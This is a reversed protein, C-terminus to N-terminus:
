GGERSERWLYRQLPRVGRRPRRDVGRIGLRGLPSLLTGGNDQEVVRPTTYDGVNVAFSEQGQRTGALRSTVSSHERVDCVAAERKHWRRRAVEDLKRLLVDVVLVKLVEESQGATRM